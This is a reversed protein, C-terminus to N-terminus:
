DIGLSRRCGSGRGRTISSTCFLGHLNLSLSYIMFGSSLGFKFVSFRLYGFPSLPTAKLIFLFHGTLLLVLQPFLQLKKALHSAAHGSRGRREAQFEWM